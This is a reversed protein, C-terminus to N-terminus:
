RIRRSHVFRDKGGDSKGPEANGKKVRGDRGM